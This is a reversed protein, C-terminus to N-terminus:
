SWDQDKGGSNREKFRSRAVLTTDNSSGGSNTKSSSDEVLLMSKTSEYTLDTDKSINM